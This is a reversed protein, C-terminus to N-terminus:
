PRASPLPRPAWQELSPEVGPWEHLPIQHLYIRRLPARPCSPLGPETPSRATPLYDVRAM